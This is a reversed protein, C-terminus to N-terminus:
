EVKKKLVIEISYEGQSQLDEAPIKHGDDCVKAEMIEYDSLCRSALPIIGVTDPPDDKDLLFFRKHEPNWRSPLAKRREYLEREPLYLILYGGPKLVRWWNKLAEEASNMHELLHSSYVFDFEEDTITELKQGDGDEIDWGCCQNTIADGGYGIDLGKGQCYKEFFNEKIRRARAKSTELLKTPRKAFRYWIKAYEISLFRYISTPLIARLLNILFRKM